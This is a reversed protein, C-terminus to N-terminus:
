TSHACRLSCQWPCDIDRYEIVIDVEQVIDFVQKAVFPQIGDTRERPRLIQKRARFLAYGLDDQKVHLHTLM